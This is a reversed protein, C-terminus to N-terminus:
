YSEFGIPNSCCLGIAVHTVLDIPNLCGYRYSYSPTVDFKSCIKRLRQRPFMNRSM